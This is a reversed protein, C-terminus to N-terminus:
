RPVMEGYHGTAPELWEYRTSDLREITSTFTGLSNNVQVGTQNNLFTWTGNYVVGNQDTESYTGDSHFNVVNLSLNLTSNAKNTKWVLSPVPTSFGNFYEAYVWTRSTLLQLRSATSDFSQNRPVMVGYNGNPALWEYRQSTLSQITSIFTGQSNIVKVQTENNLYSWTGTLMNGNQDIESYTSDANFKVQNLSFNLTNSTRNTKWALSTVSSDFRTFYEYYVWTAGTLRSTTSDLTATPHPLPISHKFCSSMSVLLGGILICSKLLKM